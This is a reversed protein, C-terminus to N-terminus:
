EASLLLERNLCTSYLYIEKVEKKTGAELAEKYLFLQERHRNILTEEEGIKVNDTKYDVLVLKGDAEEFYLDIIGQVLINEDLDKIDKYIKKVDINMYFPTETYIKKANRIRKAFDSNIFRYIKQIDIVEAQEKTIIEQKIYNEIEEELSEITYDKRFDLKQFLLHTVSGIEAKTFKSETNMFKPKELTFKNTIFYEKKDLNSNFDQNEINDNNEKNNMNEKLLEKLTTVSIKSQITTLRERKYKYLLLKEIKEYDDKNFKYTKLFEKINSNSEEIETNFNKYKSVIKNLDLFVIDISNNMNETDNLYALELWDLFNTYKKLLLSNINEGKSMELLLKKEELKKKADKTAGTIILREKPRTLAVYLIRMEESLSDDKLRIKLAEKALTSYEIKRDYNIYKPGIGLDQHLLINDNLDKLNFKKGTGSLFVIPFELGKSKHISMIRVVNDNEGILKANELEGENKKLKDIFKIFNYLGKFSAKEYQKAREFLMKLNAVKLAGDNMMSVYNYYGTDMYLKWIFEDLPIYRVVDQWNQLKNLFNIVKNELEPKGDNKFEKMSEYFTTKINGLRIELLENDDFDGIYSRLVSVLPIDQMPNDIIKLLNLVTEIEISELYKQSNDSFVPINLKFIEKEFIPAVSSTSRLLIVFDKYTVPRYKKLEKDWVNYRSDIIEKIRFAVYRAEIEIKELNEQIDEVINSISDETEEEEYENIDEDEEVEIDKTDIIELIMKGAYDVESEPTEFSATFNLYEDKTYDINGVQKSMINKFVLNAFELVLERSRFNNFLQIKQNLDNENIDEQLKFTNYKELFLEPRAQRFRYISQKVDGVMFMNQGNSIASLICEQVSNSDQYEDIAIEQFKEKYKNAAETPIYKGTEKDKKVLIQLAYHEIDNFDIINKSQKKNKLIEMFKLIVEQLYILINHMENIDKNANKSDTVILKKILDKYGTNINSRIIKSNEKIDSEIKKDTPWRKFDLTPLINYALDWSALAKLGREYEDIDLLVTDYYKKLDEDQDLANLVVRLEAINREINEKIYNLIINGWETKSFDIDLKDELNFKNVNDKLWEEPFPSSQIFNYIKLIIEKLKEDGRYGTYIETLKIFDENNEEYLEEFLDDIVELKLLELESSDGIRFDPSIGIEFFNNKIVSLCFSHITSINSKNLLIIQKQLDENNPEEELKKNIADLIRERIESAAANTFTVVLLKDIDVKDKIIKQIIREVLVATKGSGAAAAVLINRNKTEIAELQNKTWKM